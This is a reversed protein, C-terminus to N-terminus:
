PMVDELDMDDDDLDALLQDISDQAAAAPTPPPAVAGPDSDGGPTIAARAWGLHVSALAGLPGHVLRDGAASALRLGVDHMDSDHCMGAALVARQVDELPLGELLPALQSPNKSPLLSEAWDSQNLSSREVSDVLTPGDVPKRPLIRLLPHYEPPFSMPSPVWVQPLGLSLFHGGATALRGAPPLSGPGPECEVKSPLTSLVGLTLAGVDPGMQGLHWLAAQAQELRSGAVALLRGVASWDFRLPMGMRAGGIACRMEAPHLSVPHRSAALVHILTSWDDSEGCNMSQIALSEWVPTVGPHSRLYQGALLGDAERCVGRLMVSSVQPGDVEGLVPTRGLWPAIGSPLAVSNWQLFGLFGGHIWDFVSIPVGAQRAICRNLALIGELGHPRLTRRLVELEAVGLLSRGALLLGDLLAASSGDGALVEIAEVVRSAGDRGLHRVAEGVASGLVRQCDRDEEERARALLIELIMGPAVQMRALLSLLRLSSARTEWSRANVYPDLGDFDGELWASVAAQVGSRRAAPVRALMPEAMARGADGLCALYGPIELLVDIDDVRAFEAISPALDPWGHQAALLGVAKLAREKGCRCRVMADVAQQFPGPDGGTARLFGLGVLAVDMREEMLPDRRAGKQVVELLLRVIDDRTGIPVGAMYHAVSRARSGKPAQIGYRQEVLVTGLDGVRSDHRNPEYVVIMWWPFVDLTAVVEPGLPGQPVFPIGMASARRQFVDWPVPNRPPNSPAVTLDPVAEKASSEMM